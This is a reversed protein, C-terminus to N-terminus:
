NKKKGKKEASDKIRKILEDAEKRTLPEAKNGKRLSSAKGGNKMIQAYSFDRQSDTIKVVALLTLKRGMSTGDLNFVEKGESYIGFMSGDSIGWNKGANLTIEKATINVVQIRDGALDERIRFSTRFVAEAIASEEIGEFFKGMDSRFGYFNFGKGSRSSSGSESFAMIVKSTTIDVVRVDIAAIVEERKESYLWLDTESVKRELNTVSGVLMYNCSMLKGLQVVESDDFVGSQALQHEKALDDFRDREVVVLSPSNTLVRAFIDGIAAAQQETVGEARSLFKMVGLRISPNDGAEACSVCVCLALLFSLIIRKMNM